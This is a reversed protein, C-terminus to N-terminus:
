FLPPPWRPVKLLQILGYQLAFWAFLMRWALAHGTVLALLCLAPRSPTSASRRMRRTENLWSPGVVNTVSSSAIAVMEAESIGPRPRM